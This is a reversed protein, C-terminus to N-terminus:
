AFPHDADRFLRVPPPAWYPDGVDPGGTADLLAASDRVTRTIAHSVAMGGWGEGVDPGM